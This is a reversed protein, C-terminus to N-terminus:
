HAVKIYGWGKHQKSIIEYIGDPVVEVGPLLENKDVNNRKMTMACVKFSVNKDALLQQIAEAKTSKDKLVLDLGQGYVVVELQADPNANKILSIERVVAQHNVTDKSTIDFVVKYDATQAYLIQALM